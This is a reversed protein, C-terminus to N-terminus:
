PSRFLIKRIENYIHPKTHNEYKAKTTEHENKGIYCQWKRPKLIYYLILSAQRVAGCKGDGLVPMQGIDFM